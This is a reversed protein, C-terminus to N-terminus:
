EFYIAHSIQFHNREHINLLVFHAEQGYGGYYESSSAILYLSCSRNYHCRYLTAIQEDTLHAEYEENGAVHEDLLEKNVFYVSTEVYDHGKIYLDRRVQKAITEVYSRQEQEAMYAYATGMAFNSLLFLALITTKM